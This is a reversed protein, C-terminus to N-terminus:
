GEGSNLWRAVARSANYGPNKPKSNSPQAEDEKVEKRRLSIVNRSFLHRDEEYQDLAWDFDFITILVNCPPLRDM